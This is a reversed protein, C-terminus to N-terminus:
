LPGDDIILVRLSFRSGSQASSRVWTRSIEEFHSEDPPTCDIKETPEITQLSRIRM